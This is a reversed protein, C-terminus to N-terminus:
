RHTYPDDRGAPTIRYFMLRDGRYKEVVRFRKPDPLESNVSNSDKWSVLWGGGASSVREEITLRATDPDYGPIAIRPNTGKFYYNFPVSYFGFPFGGNPVNATNENSVFGSEFFVPESAGGATVQGALDRWPQPKSQAFPLMLLCAVVFGAALLNRWKVSAAGIVAAILLSSAALGPSLYRLNLMPHLIVSGVVFALAPLGIWAVLARIPENRDREVARGFVLWLTVAAAVLAAAAKVALPYNYAPGLYDLWQGYIMQQSQRIAYPIYPVFLVGALIIAMWAITDRRGRALDRLLIAAEAGLILLGAMHTYPMAAGLIGCGIGGMIGPRSRVRLLTLLHALAIAILMPYMRATHAFAVAFPNFAWIAAAALATREDFMECGLAFVLALTALSFIVSMSRLSIESLGFIRTYYHLAAYYFLFKGPEHLVPTQAIAAIGPKAASWASFAESAGLANTGLHFSYILGAAVFIAAFIELPRRSARDGFSSEITASGAESM